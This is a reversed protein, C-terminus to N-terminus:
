PANITTQPCANSVRTYEEVSDFSKQVGDRDSNMRDAVVAIMANIKEEIRRRQTKLDRESPSANADIAAAMDTINRRFIPVYREIIQRDLAVHEMEHDLGITQQCPSNTGVIYVTPSTSLTITIASPWACVSKGTSDNAIRIESDVAIGGVTLGTWLAFRRNSTVSGDFQMAQLQDGNKTRDVRPADIRTEVRVDAADPECAQAEALVLNSALALMPLVLVM